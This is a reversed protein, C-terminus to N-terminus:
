CWRATQLLSHGRAQQLLPGTSYSLLTMTQRTGRISGSCCAQVREAFSDAVQLVLHVVHLAKCGSAALGHGEVHGVM